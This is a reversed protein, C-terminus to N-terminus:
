GIGINQFLFIVCFCPFGITPFAEFATDTLFYFYERSQISTTPKIVNPMAFFIFDKRSIALFFFLNVM